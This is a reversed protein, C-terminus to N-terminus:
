DSIRLSRFSKMLSPGTQDVSFEAETFLMCFHLIEETMPILPIPLVNIPGVMVVFNLPVSGDESHTFGPTKPLIVSQAAAATKKKNKRSQWSALKFRSTYSQKSVALTNGAGPTSNSRSMSVWVASQHASRRAQARVLRRSDPGPKETAEEGTTTIFQLALRDDMEPPHRPLFQYDMSEWGPSWPSCAGRTV